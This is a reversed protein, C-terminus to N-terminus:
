IWVSSIARGLLDRLSEAAVKDLHISTIGAVESRAELVLGDRDCNQVIEIYDDEDAFDCVRGITRPDKTENM